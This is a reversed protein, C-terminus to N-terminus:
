LSGWPFPDPDPSPDPGPDVSCLTASISVLEETKLEVLLIQQVQDSLHVQSKTDIGVGRLLEDANAHYAEQKAPSLSLDTLFHFLTSM